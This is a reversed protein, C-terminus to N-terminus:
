QGGTRVAVSVSGLQQGDRAGILEPAISLTVDGTDDDEAIQVTARAVRDDALCQAVARGQLANADAISGDIAQRGQLGHQPAWPLGESTLRRVLASRVNPAGAVEALDGSPDEVFDAGQWLIDRGYLLVDLDTAGRTTAESRTPAGKRGQLASPTATVSLDSAPVGNAQVEYLGGDALDTDLQLEVVNPSSLVALAAAVNPSTGLGDLCEVSYFAVSAFAASDVTNSFFLRIRREHRIEVSNLDIAM